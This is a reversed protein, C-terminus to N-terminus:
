VTPEGIIAMGSKAGMIVVQNLVFIPPVIHSRFINILEECGLTFNSIAAAIVM